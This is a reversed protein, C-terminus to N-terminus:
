KFRKKIGVLELDRCLEELENRKPIGAMYITNDDAVKLSWLKSSAISTDLSPIGDVIRYINQNKSGKINSNDHEEMNYRGDVLIDIYRLFLKDPYLQLLEELRYGTFCHVGLKTRTKLLHLFTILEPYQEFPEGGSVTVGDYDTSITLLWNFLDPISVEKGAGKKWLM